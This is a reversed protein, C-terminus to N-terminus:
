PAGQLAHAAAELVEIFAWQDTDADDWVIDGPRRLDQNDLPRVSVAIDVQVTGGETDVILTVLQAGALDFTRDIM